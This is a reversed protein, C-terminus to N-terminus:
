RILPSPFPLIPSLEPCISNKFVWAFATFERGTVSIEKVMAEEELTWQETVM